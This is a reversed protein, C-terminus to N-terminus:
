LHLTKRRGNHLKKIFMEGPIFILYGKQGYYYKYKCKADTM